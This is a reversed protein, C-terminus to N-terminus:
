VPKVPLRKVRPKATEVQLCSAVPRFQVGKDLDGLASSTPREDIRQIGHDSLVLTDSHPNLRFSPCFINAVLHLRCGQRLRIVLGKKFPQEFLDVHAVVVKEVIGLQIVIDMVPKKAFGVVSLLEEYGINRQIVRLPHILSAGGDLQRGQLHPLSYPLM